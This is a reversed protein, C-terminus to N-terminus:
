YMGLVFSLVYRFHFQFQISNLSPILYEVYGEIKPIQEGRNSSLAIQELLALLIMNEDEYIYRSSEQFAKMVCIVVLKTEMNIINNIDKKFSNQVVVICLVISLFYKIYATNRFQNGTNFM